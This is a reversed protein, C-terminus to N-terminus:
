GVGKERVRRRRVRERDLLLLVVVICCCYYWLPSHLVLSVVIIKSTVIVFCWRCWHAMSQQLYYQPPVFSISRSPKRLEERLEEVEVKLKM